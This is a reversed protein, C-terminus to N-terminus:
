CSLCYLLVGAYRLIAAILGTLGKVPERARKINLLDFAVRLYTHRGCDPISTLECVFILDMLLKARTINLWYNQRQLRKLEMEDAKTARPNSKATAGAMSEKYLRNQVAVCEIVSVANFMAACVM